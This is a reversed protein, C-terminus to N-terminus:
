ARQAVPEPSAHEAPQWQPQPAVPEPQVLSPAPEPSGGDFDAVANTAEPASTPGLEDAISGALGDEPGAVGAADAAVDAVAHGGSATQDRTAARWAPSNTAEDEDGEEGDDAVAGEVAEPAVRM